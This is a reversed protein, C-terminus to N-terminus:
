KVEKVTACIISGNYTIMSGSKSTCEATYHSRREDIKGLVYGILLCTSFLTAAIVANTFTNIEIRERLEKGQEPYRKIYKDVSLKSYFFKKLPETKIKNSMIIKKTNLEIPSNYCFSTVFDFKLGFLDINIL